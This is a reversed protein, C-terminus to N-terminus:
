SSRGGFLCLLDLPWRSRNILPGETLSSPAAALFPLVPRPPAPPGLRSAVSGEVGGGSGGGLDPVTGAVGGDTARPGSSGRQIGGGGEDPASDASM